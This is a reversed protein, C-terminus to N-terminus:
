NSPSVEVDEPEFVLAEFVACVEGFGVDEGLFDGVVELGSKLLERRYSPLQSRLYGKYYLHMGCHSPRGSVM